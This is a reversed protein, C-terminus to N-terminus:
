DLPDVSLKDIVPFTPHRRDLTSGLAPISNVEARERRCAAEWQRRGVPTRGWFLVHPLSAAVVFRRASTEFHAEFPEVKEVRAWWRAQFYRDPGAPNGDPYLIEQCGIFECPGLRVCAEEWVERRLAEELTEGPQPHGGPLTWRWRGRVVLVLGDRFCFGYAQTTKERPPMVPGPHWTVSVRRDGARV